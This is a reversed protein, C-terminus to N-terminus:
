SSEQDSFIASVSDPPGNYPLREMNGMLFDFSQHGALKSVYFAAEQLPDYEHLSSAGNKRWLERANSLLVAKERKPGSALLHWHIPIPPQGCGCTRNERAAFYAVKSEISRGLREFLRKVMAASHSHRVTKRYTLCGYVDWDFGSLYQGYIQSIPDFEM